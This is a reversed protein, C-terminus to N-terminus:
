RRAVRAWPSIARQLLVLLADSFLALLVCLGGAAILETSFTQQLGNYIPAGLGENVVFVAITALSIVTVVAIRLGAFIAPLALPLEVKWLLQRATMGMGIAADRVEAPVAALGALMNRFLILLTYSVLAIEATTRTLGTFPVLLQFLALSPITYLFGTVVVVPTTLWGRRHATLALSFAIASGIGIAILTLAIHQLLAPQLTDSWNDKVWGWCFLADPDRVCSSGRGFEPIVPDSQALPLAFAM